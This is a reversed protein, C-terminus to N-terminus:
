KQSTHHKAKKAKNTKWREGALQRDPNVNANREYAYSSSRLLYSAGAEQRANPAQQAFAPAADQYDDRNAFPLQSLVAHNAASVAPEAPKAEQGAAPHAAGVGFTTIALLAGRCVRGLPYGSRKM